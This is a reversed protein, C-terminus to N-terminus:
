NDPQASLLAKLRARGRALLSEVAKASLSMIAAIDKVSLDQYYRFALAARQHEPLQQLAAALQQQQSLVDIGAGADASDDSRGSALARETVETDVVHRRQYRQAHNLALNHAVTYLWTGLKADDRWRPAQQWLRLFVEQCLDEADATSLVIRYIVNVIRGAHRGVLTGLAVDDGRALRQMLEEDTLVGRAGVQEGNSQTVSPKTCSPKTCRPKTCIPKTCSPEATDFEVRGSSTCASAASYPM